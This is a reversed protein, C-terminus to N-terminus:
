NDTGLESVPIFGLTRMNSVAFDISEKSKIYRVGFDVLRVVTSWDDPIPLLLDRVHEPELHQQVAGYENRLIQHKANESMLFGIVYARLTPSSIRVRVMDDSVIAGDLSSTVYALRGIVGSRTLLIDGEHVTCIGFDRKQKASTKSLDIWKVSDRKEQLLASPTFYPIIDSSDSESGAQVNETKLRPGKFIRIDKEVQGLTSASWGEIDSYALVDSLADNLHPLHFQPNLNVADGLDSRRASFRYTSPILRGARFARLDHAIESLDHDIDATLAGDDNTRFIPMGESDQGAKQSIAMFIEYDDPPVEGLELKRIFLVCTRVGTDPQFSDKHLTVVAEVVAESLIIMRASLYANTDLVSKPLVIGLRGGPKLWDLSRELFLVEPAQRELLAGGIGVSEVSGTLKRATRFQSLIAPDTVQGDSRGAFPPNTLIVDPMHRACRAKLWDDLEDYRGLSNGRTMGSHGDGNLLMATKALKVLRPSIESLYMSSKAIGLMRGRPPTDPKTEALVQRRVHRFASTVFGGSGGAPDLVIEGVKPDVLEVIMNVILRNTFFQGRQRKLNAHTYQEYAAGMIDWDDADDVNADLSWPQLVAVVEIISDNSVEIKEDRDFVTPFQDAFRRFLQRIREGAVTRGAPTEYEEATVYFQPLEGPESEDQIKALLIRVMDMTLDYDSNEMGRGYLKNNCTRFLRRVDYPRELERKRRRGVSNWEEQARPLEPVQELSNSTHSRRYIVTDDGNSWIGGAASTNFIYSTLQAYGSKEDPRKCEVVFKINGQDRKSAAVSSNYVVIDARIPRGFADELEAHGRQIPVERRIVNRSYGYDNMLVAIFEQRVEEEPTANLITGDLLCVFQNDENRRPEM